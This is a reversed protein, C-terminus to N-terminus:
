QPVDGFEFTFGPRTIWRAPLKAFLPALGTRELLADAAAKDAGELTLYHGLPRMWMWLTDVRAVRNITRGRLSFSHFGAVASGNPMSPVTTGTATDLDGGMWENCCTILSIMEPAFDQALLKLIAEMTPAIADEPLFAEPADAHEPPQGEMAPTASWETWRYVLSARQKMLTAPAPDRALHAYLPGRLGFDGISALGGLLYPHERLHVELLNIFDWYAEEIAPISEETIGLPGLSSAMREAFRAGGGKPDAIAKAGDRGRSFEPLIFPMNEDPFSWRYHMAPPIMGEDGYAEFILAVLKQVPTQPMLAPDPHHAELWDIIDSTDQLITGDPAEVMPLKTYGIHPRVITDFHEGRAFRERFPLGKKRMYARVKGTFYSPEAGYLTYPQM